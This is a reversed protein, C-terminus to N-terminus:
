YSFHTLGDFLDSTQRKKSDTLHIYTDMTTSIRSHGLRIQVEKASAGGELLMTAHTHRLSHFNFPFGLKKHIRGSWYKISNPTIPKGNEKTCVFNSQHYYNGYKLRNESQHQRQRKLVNVLTKSITITRYSAATKLSGLRTEGGPYQKMQQKVKIEGGLLDIDEWLLGCVEGRRLGTYFSIIFPTEIMSGHGLFDLIQQFQGPTIIKLDERSPKKNKEKPPTVYAAPSSDLLQWPYVAQKFAEKVVMWIIEVTHNALKTHNQTFDTSEAVDDIFEQLTAPRVDKLLYYGLKPMIYKEVVNHYNLQTSKALHQKVYHEEWFHFYDTVSIRDAEPVTGTDHYIALAKSLAKRAEARTKGGVREVQKPKGNQKAVYFRYYWKKGRKRVTGEM